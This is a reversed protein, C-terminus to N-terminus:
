SGFLVLPEGGTLRDGIMSLVELTIEGAHCHVLGFIGVPGESRVGDPDHSQAPTPWRLPLASGQADVAYVRGADQGIREARVLAVVEADAIPVALREGCRRPLEAYDAVARDVLGRVHDAILPAQEWRKLRIRRPAPGPYLGAEAVALRLRAPAVGRSGRAMRVPTIVKEAYIVGDRLDALYATEVVFERDRTTRFGVATLDLNTIPELEDERWTKGLLDEALAPDLAGNGSLLAASAQRTLELEVLLQAFGTEDMGRKSAAPAADQLRVILNGLRRLKLARALEGAQAILSAKEPGLALLGGDALEAILRDVVELGAARLETRQPSKKAARPARVRKEPKAPAEAPAEVVTFSGPSQVLATCLAVVHKCYRNRRHAPCTCTVKVPDGFAVSVRYDASGKVTAYASTGSVTTQQVLGKAFYVQGERFAGAGALDPLQTTLDALIPHAAPDFAPPM